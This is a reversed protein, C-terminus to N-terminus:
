TAGASQLRFEAPGSGWLVGLTEEVTQQVTRFQPAQRQFGSFNAGDYELVACFRSIQDAKGRLRSSLVMRVIL